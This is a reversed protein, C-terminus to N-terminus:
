LNEATRFLDDVQESTLGLDSAAQNLTEDDRRWAISRLTRIEQRKTRSPHAVWAEYAALLGAGELALLAKYADVETPVPKVPVDGETKIIIENTQANVEFFSNPTARATQLNADTNPLITIAM